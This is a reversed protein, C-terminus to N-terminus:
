LDSTACIASVKDVDQSHEAFKEEHELWETTFMSPTTRAPNYVPEHGRSSHLARGSRSCPLIPRQSSPVVYNDLHTMMTAHLRATRVYGTVPFWSIIVPGPGFPRPTKVITVLVTHGDRM